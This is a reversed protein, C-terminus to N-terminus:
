EKEEVIEAKSSHFKKVKSDKEDTFQIFEGEVIEYKSVHFTLIQGQLSLITIRYRSM